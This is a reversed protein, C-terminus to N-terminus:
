DIPERPPGPRTWEMIVVEVLGGPGGELGLPPKMQLPKSAAVWGARVWTEVRRLIVYRFHSENMM